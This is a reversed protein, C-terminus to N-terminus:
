PKETPAPYIEGLQNRLAADRGDNPDFNPHDAPEVPKTEPKEEKEDAKAKAM